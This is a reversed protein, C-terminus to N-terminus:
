KARLKSLTSCQIAIKNLFFRSFCWMWLIYALIAWLSNRLFAKFVVFGNMFPFLVISQIISFNNNSCNYRKLFIKIINNAHAQIYFTTCDFILYIFLCVHRRHLCLSVSDFRAFLYSFCWCCCCLLVDRAFSITFNRSIFMSWLLLTDTTIHLDEFVNSTM